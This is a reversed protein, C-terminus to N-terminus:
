EDNYNESVCFLNPSYSPAHSEELYEKSSGVPRFMIIEGSLSAEVAVRDRYPVAGMVM